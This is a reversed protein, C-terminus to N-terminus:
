AHCHSFPSRIDSTHVVEDLLLVIGAGDLFECSAVREESGDAVPVLVQCVM